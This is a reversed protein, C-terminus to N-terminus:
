CIEDRNWKTGQKTQCAKSSWELPVFVLDGCWNCARVRSKPLTRKFGWSLSCYCQHSCSNGNFLWIYNKTWGEVCTFMHAGVPRCCWVECLELLFTLPAQFFFDFAYPVQPLYVGLRLAWKHNAVAPKSSAKVISWCCAEETGKWVVSHATRAAWLSWCHSPLSKRSFWMNHESVHRVKM